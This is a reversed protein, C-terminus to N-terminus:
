LSKRRDWWVRSRLFGTVGPRAIKEMLHWPAMGMYFRVDYIKKVRLDVEMM